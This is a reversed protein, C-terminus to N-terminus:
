MGHLLVLIGTLTFNTTVPAFSKVHLKMVQLLASKLHTLWSSYM